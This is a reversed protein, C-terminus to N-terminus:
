EAIIGELGWSTATILRAPTIRNWLNQPSIARVRLYNDTLGRLEWRGDDLTIASEWLVYLERSVFRQRYEAASAALVERM